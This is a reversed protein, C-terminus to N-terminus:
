HITESHGPLEAMQVRAGKKQLTEGLISNIEDLAVDRPMDTALGSPIVETSRRYCNGGKGIRRDGRRCYSRFGFYGNGRSNLARQAASLVRSFDAGTPLRGGAGKFQYEGDYLQHVVGCVSRPYRGSNKRTIVVGGVALMGETTKNDEGKIACAMCKLPDTDRRSCQQGPSIAAAMDSFMFSVAILAIAIMLKM